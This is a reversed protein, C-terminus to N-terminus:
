RLKSKGMEEVAVDVIWSFCFTEQELKKKIKQKDWILDWGIFRQYEKPNDEIDSINKTVKYANFSLYGLPLSVLIIPLGIIASFGGSATLAVGFIVLAISAVLIATSILGISQLQKKTEEKERIYSPDINEHVNEMFSSIFSAM